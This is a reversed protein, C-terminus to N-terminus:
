RYTSKSKWSPIIMRWIKKDMGSLANEYRQVFHYISNKHGLYFLEQQGGQNRGVSLKDLAYQGVPLLLSLNKKWHSANLFDQL